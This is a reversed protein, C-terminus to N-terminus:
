IEKDEVRAKLLKLIDNFANNHEKTGDESNMLFEEAEKQTIGTTMVMFAYESVAKKYDEKKTKLLDRILMAANLVGFLSTIRSFIETNDIVAKPIIIERKTKDFDVYFSVEKELPITVRKSPFYDPKDKLEVRVTSIFEYLFARHAKVKHDKWDKWFATWDTVSDAVAYYALCTFSKGIEELALEALALAIHKEDTGSVSVSTKLLQTANEILEIFLNELEEPKLHIM